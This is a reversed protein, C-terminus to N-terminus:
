EHLFDDIDLDYAYSDVDHVGIVYLVYSSVSSGRGVGWVVNHTTLNNIIYIITRLVDLFNYKQYKIMEQALRLEREDFDPDDKHENYHKDMVYDVVNLQMSKAPITWERTLERCDTKITIAKSKPVHTNYERVADTIRDVYAVDYYQVTSLLTNADFTSDGDFWLIRDDLITSLLHAKTPEM